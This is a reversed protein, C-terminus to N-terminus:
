PGPPSQEKKPEPLLKVTLKEPEGSRSGPEGKIQLLFFTSLSAMIVGILFLIPVLGILDALAGAFLVPLASVLNTVSFLMAFVRGRVEEASEEQLVTNASITVWANSMGLGFACIMAIPVVLSNSEGIGGLGVLLYSLREGLVRAGALLMLLVGSIALSATVLRDNGLMRSVRDVLVVGLGMGLGAPVMIISVDGTNLGLVRIALGPGLSAIMLLVSVAISSVATARRLKPNRRLYDWGERVADLLGEPLYRTDARTRRGNGSPLRAVLIACLLFLGAIVLWLSDLGLVRVFLPGLIAFGVAVSGNFTASFFANASLLQKRPVLLPITAAEAPGFFQGIISFVITLLYVALLSNGFLGDVRVFFFSAVVIARLVNTVLMMQTKDTRDVVAGAIAGVFVAPLSFALIALSVLLSRQSIEEILVLVAFNVVTQATQSIAQAVWLRMFDRNRTVAPIQM